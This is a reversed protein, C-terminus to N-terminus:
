NQQSGLRNVIDAVCQNIDDSEVENCVKFHKGVNIDSLFNYPPNACSYFVVSNLLEDNWGLLGVNSIFQNANSAFADGSSSGLAQIIGNYIETGEVTKTM